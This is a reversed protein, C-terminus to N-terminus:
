RAGLLHEIALQDVRAFGYGRRGAADVGFDELSSRDARLDAYPWGVTWFGFSFKDDPTPRTEAM